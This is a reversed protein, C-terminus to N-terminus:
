WNNCTTNQTYVLNRLLLMIKLLLSKTNELINLIIKSLKIDNTYIHFKPKNLLKKYIKVNKYYTVDYM